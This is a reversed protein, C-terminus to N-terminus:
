EEPAQVCDSLPHMLMVQHQQDGGKEHNRTDHEQVM